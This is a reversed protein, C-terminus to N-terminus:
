QKGNRSLSKSSEKSPGGKQHDPLPGEEENVGQNKKGEREGKTASWRKTRRVAINKKTREQSPRAPLKCPAKQKPTNVGGARRAEKERGEKKGASWQRIKWREIPIEVGKKEKPVVRRKQGAKRESRLGPGSGVARGFGGQLGIEGRFLDARV